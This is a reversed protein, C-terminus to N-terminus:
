QYAMRTAKYQKTQIGRTLNRFTYILISPLPLPDFQKWKCSLNVDNQPDAAPFWDNNKDGM